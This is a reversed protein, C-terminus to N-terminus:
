KNQELYKERLRAYTGDAIMDTIAEDFAAALAKSDDTVPFVMYTEFHMLVPTLKRVGSIKLKHLTYMGADHSTLVADVRKLVLKKFNVEENDVDDIRWRNNVAGQALGDPLRFGSRVGIVKGDLNKISTIGPSEDRVFLTYDTPQVPVQGFLMNKERLTTKSFAFGCAVRSNRGRSIEFELRRFPMKQFSVAIGSRRAAETVIDVNIGVIEDGAMMFFPEFIDDYCVLTRPLKQAMVPMSQMLALVILSLHILRTTIM